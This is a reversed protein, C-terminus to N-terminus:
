SGGLKLIWVLRLQAVEGLRTNRRTTTISDFSGSPRNDSSHNTNTSRGKWLCSLCCLCSIYVKFFYVVFDKRRKLEVKVIRKCTGVCTMLFFLFCTSHFISVENFYSIVSLVVFVYYLLLLLLHPPPSSFFFFYYFFLYYYLLLLFSIICLLLVLM